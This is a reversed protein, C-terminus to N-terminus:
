GFSPSSFLSFMTRKTRKMWQQCFSIDVFVHCSRDCPETKRRAHGTTEAKKAGQSRSPSAGLKPALYPMAALFLREYHRCDSACRHKVFLIAIGLLGRPVGCPSWHKEALFPRQCVLASSFVMVSKGRSQFSVFKRAALPWDPDAEFDHCPM